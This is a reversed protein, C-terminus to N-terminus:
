TVLNKRQEYVFFAFMILFLVIELLSVQNRYPLHLFAIIKSISISTLWLLKLIDLLTKTKKQYFHIAYFLPVGLLGVVLLVSASQWHMIKFLAGVIIVAFCLSVWSGLTRNKIFTGKSLLLVIGGIKGIYEFINIVDPLKILHFDNIIEITVGIIVLLGVIIIATKNTNMYRCQYITHM